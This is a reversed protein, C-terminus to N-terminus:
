PLPWESQLGNDDKKLPVIDFSARCHPCKGREPKDVINDCNGCRDFEEPEAVHTRCYEWLTGKGESPFPAGMKVHMWKSRQQMYRIYQITNGCHKCKKLETM